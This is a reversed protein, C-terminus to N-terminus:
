FSSMEQFFIEIFIPQEQFIENKKQMQRSFEKSFQFNASFSLFYGFFM